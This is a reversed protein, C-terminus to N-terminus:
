QDAALEGNIAQEELETLYRFSQPAQFSGNLAAPVLPRELKRVEGLCVGYGKPNGRFYDRLERRTLGGGHVKAQDWLRAVSQHLVETIPAVAVIMMMPSTAYIVLRSVPCKAWSRRFEIRKEGKLILDVFRPHISILLSRPAAQM